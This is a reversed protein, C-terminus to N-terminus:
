GTFLMYAPETHVHFVSPDVGIPGDIICTRVLTELGPPVPDVVPDATVGDQTITYTGGVLLIPSTGDIPWGPTGLPAQVTYANSGCVVNWTFVDKPAAAAPAALALTTAMAAVFMPITKRM